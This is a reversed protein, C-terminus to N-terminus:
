WFLFYMYQMCRSCAYVYLNIWLDVLFLAFRWFPVVWFRNMYVIHLCMNQTNSFYSVMTVALRLTCTMACAALIAGDKCVESTM